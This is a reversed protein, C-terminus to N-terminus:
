VKEGCVGLQSRIECVHEFNHPRSTHSLTQISSELLPHSSCVALDASRWVNQLTEAVLFSCFSVFYNMDPIFSEENENNILMEKLHQM